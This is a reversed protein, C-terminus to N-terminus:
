VHNRRVAFILLLALCHGLKVEERNKRVGRRNNKKALCDAPAPERRRWKEIQPGHCPNPRACERGARGRARVDDSTKTLQLEFNPPANSHAVGM